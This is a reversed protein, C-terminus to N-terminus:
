IEIKKDNSEEKGQNTMYYDKSSLLEYDKKARRYRCCIIWFIIVTIFYLSVPLVIILILSSNGMSSLINCVEDEYEVEIYPDFINKRDRESDQTNEQNLLRLQNYKIAFYSNM